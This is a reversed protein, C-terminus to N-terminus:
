SMERRSCFGAQQVSRAGVQSVVGNASVEYHDKYGTQESFVFYSGAGADRLLLIAQALSETCGLWKPEGNNAAFVDLPTVV